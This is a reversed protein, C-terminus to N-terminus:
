KVVRLDINEYWDMDGDGWCVFSLDKKTETILGVCIGPLKWRVIDGVKM